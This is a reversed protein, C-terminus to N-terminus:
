KKQLVNLEAMLNELSEAEQMEVTKTPPAPEAKHEATTEVIEIGWDNERKEVKEEEKKKVTLAM